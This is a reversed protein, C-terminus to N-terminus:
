CILGGITNNQDFIEEVRVDNVCDRSHIFSNGPVSDESWTLFSVLKFLIKMMMLANNQM